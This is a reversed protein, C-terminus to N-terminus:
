YLVFRASGWLSELAPGFMFVAFMNFFIHAFGEPSHLFGYTVLQWPEFLPTGPPWLAFRDELAGGGSLQLLYVLLNAGILAITAPPLNAFM